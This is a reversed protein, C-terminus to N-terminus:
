IANKVGDLFVKVDDVTVDTTESRLLEALKQLGQGLSTRAVPHAAAEKVIQQAALDTLKATKVDAMIDTVIKAISKSM